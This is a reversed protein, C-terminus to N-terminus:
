DQEAQIKLIVVFTLVICVVALLSYAFYLPNKAFGYYVNSMVVSQGVAKVLGASAHTIQGIIWGPFKLPGTPDIKGAVFQLWLLVNWGCLVLTTGIMIKRNNVRQWLASLGIALLPLMEAMRRAGFAWGGYFEWVMSNVLSSLVFLGLFTIAWVRKQKWMFGLGVLGLLTIPTWFFLGHNPSFWLRLTNLLWEGVHTVPIFYGAGQPLVFFSGYIIKWAILQWIGLALAGLGFFLVQWLRRKVVLLYIFIPLLFIVQQWRILCVMGGWLGGLLADSDEKFYKTQLWYWYLLSIGFFSLPHSSVPENFLYNLLMAGVTVGIVSWWAISEDAFFRVLRYLYFVGMIAYCYTGLPIFLQYFFSYGDNPLHLLPATITTAVWGVGFWPAWLMAPGISFPNAVLGTSTRESVATWYAQNNFDKYENTFDFNGDVLPSRLWAYYSWGDGTIKGKLLFLGGLLLGVLVLLVSRNLKGHVIKALLEHFM